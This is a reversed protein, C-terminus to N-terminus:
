AARVDLECRIADWVAEENAGYERALDPVSDGAKFQEALVATPIATGAVVPRGFSVRPDIEVTRPQDELPHTRMFPFLKVPVGKADREIRRLYAQILEKMEVQGESSINVVQGLHEVFLSVGDTAFEQEILPRRTGLRRELFALGSRVKPLPINHKRRISTLVYAEVLNSFSLVTPNASAPRIVPLFRRPEGKVRYTQGSFWARLTSAPVGLYHAAETVTYAPIDRPDTKM